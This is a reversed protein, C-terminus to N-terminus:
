ASVCNWHWEFGGKPVRRRILDECPENFLPALLSSMLQEGSGARDPTPLLLEEALSLINGVVHSLNM